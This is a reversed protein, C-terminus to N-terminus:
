LAEAQRKLAVYDVKGTGLLPLEPLAVIRRPVALEPLGLRRAAALLAERNLTAATSFLVLSEGRQADGLSTAAHRADPQTTAVAEAALREVVELSVMEGAIKAFRKLRGRIYLFGDADLEAIDGTDYWGAEGEAAPAELVGPRDVRYYGSMVNPGRVLLRGGGVIGPVPLLRTQIGPLPQGVSGARYAMPTNVAIVPATETAGYGELIRLGFKDFWLQRVPEALKEAGAIVYRLRHFDYPHAYRAYNALFTGTGLLVTCGRDYALEPIVRYHLPSPYLFVDAGSLLPLLTGGTLGFSHFMPLANLFKDAPSLDIVARIQALNALIARHSLVVGKPKGETGSTFLVVAPADPDAAREVRRPLWADRLIALKDRWGLAARLDELYRVELEGLAALTPELRAKALFARSTFLVRINAARCAARLGEAGATYNLMAPVRGRASLGLLLGLTAALNPLLLGVHEGAATHRAALRGLGQIMRLLDGYRYEVQKMDEVIRRRRGHVAMAELFAAYLTQPPQASFIMDQMIRRLAEGARRRRERASGAALAIRTPPLLTLTIRPWFAKPHRGSVRAFYSRAPGDLRAPVISAGTKAAVFGPGDYVKMLSGTTTIRGEPFIAVPRGAQVLRLISKVAMPNAPDVTYYDVLSLVLRFLPNRAVGTHVVFVPEIPLSVGLILGDLFSEHNAVIMLPQGPEVQLRGVVRVRLLKRLLWKVAERAMSRFM